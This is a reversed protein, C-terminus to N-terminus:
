AKTEATGMATTEEWRALLWLADSLRNLYQLSKEPIGHGSKKLSTLRREARRCITRALDLAAARPNAGPTAWGEFRISQSEMEAVVHDLRSLMAEQFKPYPSAQYREHDEDLVALEGMLAVLEKQTELLHKQLSPSNSTSRAMGLAANLEDLTGYTEVRVHDKPVRKGYMLSTEGQDGTKTVISM